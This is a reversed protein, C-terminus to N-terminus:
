RKMAAIKHGYARLWTSAFAIRSRNAIQPLHLGRPSADGPRADVLPRRRM